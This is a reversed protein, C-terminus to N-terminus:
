KFPYVVLLLSFLVVKLAFHTVFSNILKPYAKMFNPWSKDALASTTGDEHTFSSLVKCSLTGGKANSFTSSIKFFCSPFEYLLIM